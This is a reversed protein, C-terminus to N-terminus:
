RLGQLIRIVDYPIFTSESLSPGRGGLARERSLSGRWDLIRPAPGPEVVYCRYRCASTVRITDMTASINRVSSHASFHPFIDPSSLFKTVPGGPTQITTEKRTHISM